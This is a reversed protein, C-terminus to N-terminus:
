SKKRGRVSLKIEEHASIIDAYEPPIEGDERAAVKEKFLASLSQPSITFLDRYGESELRLLLDQRDSASCAYSTKRTRSFTVGSNTRVLDLGEDNMAAIMNLEADDLVAKAEATQSKLEEYVARADLYRASLTEFVNTM